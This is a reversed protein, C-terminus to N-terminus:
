MSITIWAPDVWVGRTENWRRMQLKSNYSRYKNVIVDAFPTITVEGEQVVITESAQQKPEQAQAVIASSMMVVAFIFVALGKKM